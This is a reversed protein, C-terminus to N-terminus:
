EGLGKWDTSKSPPKPKTRARPDLQKVCRYPKGTETCQRICGEHHQGNPDWPLLAAAHAVIVEDSLSGSEAQQTFMIRIASRIAVDENRAAVQAPTEPRHRVAM